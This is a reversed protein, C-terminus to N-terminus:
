LKKPLDVCLNSFEHGNDRRETDTDWNIVDIYHFSEKKGETAYYNKKSLKLHDNGFTKEYGYGYKKQQQQTNWIHCM